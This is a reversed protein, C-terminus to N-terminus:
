REPSIAESRLAQEDSALVEHLRNLVALAGARNLHIEDKFFEPRARGHSTLLDWSDVFGLHELVCFRKFTTNVLEIIRQLADLTYTAESVGAAPPLTNLYLRRCGADRLACLGALIPSLRAEVIECLGRPEHISSCENALDLADTIGMCVVLVSAPDRVEFAVDNMAGGFVTHPPHAFPNSGTPATPRLVHLAWLMRTIMEDFGDASYFAGARLSPLWLADTCVLSEPSSTQHLLLGDFTGAHSDGVFAYRQLTGAYYALTTM